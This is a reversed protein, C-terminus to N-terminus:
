RGIQLQLIAQLLYSDSRGPNLEIAKQIEQLARDVNNQAAYYNAWAEHTEPSNPQKENLIDLHTKAMKLSEAAPSGDPNRATVLLNALDTHARYNDPDLEVTRNLEQYARNSDGLKLYTEGLQYHAQAFRSDVQIANRYQIEAERFKGEAFYKEGSDFYKQKRVNPDRTCSTFLAAILTCALLLRVAVSRSM